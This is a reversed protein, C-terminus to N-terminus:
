QEDPRYQAVIGTSLDIIPSTELAVRNATHMVLRACRHLGCSESATNVVEPMSKSLFIFAKVVLQNLSQLPQGTMTLFESELQAQLALDESAISRARNIENDTLPLQVNQKSESQLVQGSILNVVSYELTDTQYNYSYVDAMRVGNSTPTSKDLMHREVLLLETQESNIASASSNLDLSQPVSLIEDAQATLGGCLIPIGPMVKNCASQKEQLSLSQFNQVSEAHSTQQFFVIGM